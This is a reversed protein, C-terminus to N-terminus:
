RQQLIFMFVELHVVVNFIKSSHKNMYHSGSFTTILGCSLVTLLVLTLLLPVFTLSKDEQSRCYLIM